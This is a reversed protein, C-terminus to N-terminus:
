SKRKRTTVKAAGEKEPLPAPMTEVTPASPEVGFDPDRVPRWLARSVQQVQVPANSVDDGPEYVSRHYSRGVEVGDKLVITAERCQITTDPLIELKYELQESYSAM